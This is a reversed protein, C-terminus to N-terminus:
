PFCESLEEFFYVSNGYSGAFRNTLIYSFSNFALVCTSIQVSTNVAANNVIVLLHFCDQGDASSVFM